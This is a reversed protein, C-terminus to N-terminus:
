SKINKDNNKNSQGNPPNQTPNGLIIFPKLRYKTPCSSPPFAYKEQKDDSGCKVDSAWSRPLLSVLKKDIGCMKKRGANYTSNLTSYIM